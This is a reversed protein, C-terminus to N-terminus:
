LSRPPLLSVFEIEHPDIVSTDAYATLSDSNIMAIFESLKMAPPLTYRTYVRGDRVVIGVEPAEVEPDPRVILGLHDTESMNELYLRSYDNFIIQTINGDPPPAEGGHLVDPYLPPRFEIDGPALGDETLYVPDFTELLALHEHLLMTDELSLSSVSSPANLDYVEEPSNKLIGDIIDISDQWGATVYANKRSQDIDAM